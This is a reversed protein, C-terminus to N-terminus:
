SALAAGTAPLDTDSVSNSWSTSEVFSLAAFRGNAALAANGEFSLTGSPTQIQTNALERFFCSSGGGCGSVRNIARIKGDDSVAPLNIVDPAILTLGGDRLLFLKYNGAQGSGRQSATTVFYVDQGTADTALNFVQGAAIAMLFGLGGLIKM